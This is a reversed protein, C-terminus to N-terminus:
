NRVSLLNNNFSRIYEEISKSSIIKNYLLNIRSSSLKDYTEYIVKNCKNVQNGWSTCLAIFVVLHRYDNTKSKIKEYYEVFNSLYPIGIFSVEDKNLLSKMLFLKEPRKQSYIIKLKSTNRSLGLSLMGVFDPDLNYSMNHFKIKYPTQRVRSIRFEKFTGTPFKSNYAKLMHSPHIKHSSGSYTNFTAILQYQELIKSTQCFRCKGDEAIKSGWIIGDELDQGYLELKGCSCTVLKVKRQLINDYQTSNIIFELSSNSISSVNSRKNLIIEWYELEKTVDYHYNDKDKYSDDINLTFEDDLIKALIFAHLIPVIAGLKFINTPLHNIM